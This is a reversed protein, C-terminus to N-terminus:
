LSITLELGHFVYRSSLFYPAPATQGRPPRAVRYHSSPARHMLVDEFIVTTQQERDGVPYQAADSVGLPGEVQLMVALRLAHDVSNVSYNPLNKM